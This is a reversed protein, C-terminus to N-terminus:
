EETSRAYERELRSRVDVLLQKTARIGARESLDDGEYEIGVHGRYGADLVVRMLKTYDLGTARGQDDFAHTKASIAKAHPMLDRVGEYPDYSEGERIQWNGFDPLTGCHKRDVENMVGALWEGDSSLGGHNEVLVNIDREAAFATLRRLGDAARKQQETPSGAEMTRANVRVAHCGLTAAAEVWKHHNEVATTREAADPHGLAGEGDCMILLSQVGADEARTKMTQLYQADTARDMFFQNVYEIAGIDFEERATRAFDLNDLDGDFLARHLSWQALSIRYLPANGTAGGESRAPAPNHDSAYGGAPFATGLALAASTKLFTRRTSAPM